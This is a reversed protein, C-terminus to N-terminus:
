TNLYVIITYDAFLHLTVSQWVCRSVSLLPEYSCQADFFSPPLRKSLYHIRGDNVLLKEELCRMYFRM